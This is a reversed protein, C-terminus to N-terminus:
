ENVTIVTKGTAHGQGIYRIAEAAQELPYRQEVAPIVTGAELYQTLTLLDATNTTGMLTVFKQGRPGFLGAGIQRQMGNLMPGGGEGGVFVVTGRPALVGRLEDIPRIGAIDLIVDHSGDGLDDVTYDIVHDAGLRKVFDIKGPSVVATVIAGQAKALQIAFSGVGSGAGIILVSKGAVPGAKTLAQLATLGSVPSAAAQEFSLGAPMPALAKQKAIAFEAFTGTGGGFVRDGPAFETVGTGVREVVGAVDLGLMKQRPTRLGLALRAMLPTGTLLHWVGRDLGAARVRILVEGAAPEPVAADRITVVSADGYVDHMAAKM